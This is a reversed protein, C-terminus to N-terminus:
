ARSCVRRTSKGGNVELVVAAVRSVTGQADIIPLYHEIWHSSQTRSPLKGSVEFELPRRVQLVEYIKKEILDAVEGLIERATRGLHDEAPVGKMKALERNIAIYHLSPDLICLGVSSASFYASALEDLETLAEPHQSSVFMGETWAKRDSMM